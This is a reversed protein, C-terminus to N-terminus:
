SEGWLRLAEPVPMGAQISGVIAHAQRWGAVDAPTMEHAEDRCWISGDPRLDARGRCAPCTVATM